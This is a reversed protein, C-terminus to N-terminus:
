FIIFKYVIYYVILKTLEYLGTTDTFGSTDGVKRGGLAKNLEPLTLLRVTAKKGYLNFLDKGDVGDTNGNNTENYETGNNSIKTYYGKNEVKNNDTGYKFKIQEFNYYLGASAELGYDENEGTYFEYGEGLIEKFKKLRDTEEYKETNKNEKEFWDNNATDIFCYYLEAPIGTSMLKVESYTGDGNPTASQLRWGNKKTYERSNDYMDIYTVDYEVFPAKSVEIPTTVIVECTATLEETSDDEGTATCTATITAKGVKDATVTITNGSTASITAINSENTEASATGVGEENNDKISWTIEGQIGNLTATLTTSPSTGESSGEKPLELIIQKKNLGIGTIKEISGDENVKYLRGEKTTVDISEDEENANADACWDKEKLFDALSKEEKGDYNAMEYEGLAIEINEKDQGEQYAEKAKKAHSIIGDGQVANIAVVALILLIVVTIILAILTIGKNNYTHHKIHLKQKEKSKILLNM